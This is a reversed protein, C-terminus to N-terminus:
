IAKGVLTTYLQSLLLIVSIGNEMLKKQVWTSEYAELKQIELNPPSLDETVESIDYVYIFGDFVRIVNDTIKRISSLQDLLNYPHTNDIELYRNVTDVFSDRIAKSYIYIGNVKINDGLYTPAMGETIFIMPVSYFPTYTPFNSKTRNAFVYTWSSVQMLSVAPLSEYSRTSPQSVM